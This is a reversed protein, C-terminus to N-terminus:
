KRANKRVYAEVADDSPEQWVQERINDEDHAELATPSALDSADGSSGSTEDTDTRRLRSLGTFIRLVSPRRKTPVSRAEAARIDDDLAKQAGVHNSEGAASSTEPAHATKYSLPDDFLSWPATSAPTRVPGSNLADDQSSSRSFYMRDDMNSGSVSSRSEKNKRITLPQNSPLRSLPLPAVTWTSPVELPAAWSLVSTEISHNHPSEWINSRIEDIIDDLPGYVYQDNHRHHISKRFIRKRFTARHSKKQIQLPPPCFAAHQSLGLTDLGVLAMVFADLFL